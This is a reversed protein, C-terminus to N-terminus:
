PKPPAAPPAETKVKERAEIAATVEPCQDPGSRQVVGNHPNDAICAQLQQIPALIDAADLKRANMAAQELTQVTALPVLVLEPTTQALALTPLLLLATLTALRTM